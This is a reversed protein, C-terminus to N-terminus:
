KHYLFLLITLFWSCLILPMLVGFDIWCLDLLLLDYLINLSFGLPNLLFFCLSLNQLMTFLGIQIPNDLIYMFGKRSMILNFTADLWNIRTSLNLNYNVLRCHNITNVIKCYNLSRLNFSLEGFLLGNSM